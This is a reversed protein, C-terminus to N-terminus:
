IEDNIKVIAVTGVNTEMNCGELPLRLGQSELKLSRVNDMQYVRPHSREQGGGQTERSSTHGREQTCRTTKREENRRGTVM